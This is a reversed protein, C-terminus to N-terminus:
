AILALVDEALERFPVPRRTERRLRQRLASPLFPDDRHERPWTGHSLGIVFLHDFPVGRAQM